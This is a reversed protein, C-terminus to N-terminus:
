IDQLKNSSKSYYKDAANLPL